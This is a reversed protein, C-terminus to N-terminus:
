WLIFYVWRHHCGCYLFLCFRINRRRSVWKVYMDIEMEMDYNTELNQIHSEKKEVSLIKKKHTYPFRWSKNANTQRSVNHHIWSIWSTNDDSWNNWIELVAFFFADLKMKECSMRCRVRYMAMRGHIWMYIVWKMKVIHEHKTQFRLGKQNLTQKNMGNRCTNIHIPVWYPQFFLFIYM